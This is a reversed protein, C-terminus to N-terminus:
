RVNGSRCHRALCRTCQLTMGTMGLTGVPARSGSAGPIEKGADIQFQRITAGGLSCALKTGDPSFALAPRVLNGASDTSNAQELQANTSKGVPFTRTGSRLDWLEITHSKRCVALSRGNASLAIAMAADYRTPSDGEWKGGLRRLEKGTAVDSLVIGHGPYHDWALTKDDASFILSTAAVGNEVEIPRLEKGTALDRFHILVAGNDRDEITQFALYKLGPSVLAIQAARSAFASVSSSSAAPIGQGPRVCTGSAVDWVATAHGPALTLLLKADASFALQVLREQGTDLQHLQKGSASEWLRVIGSRSAAVVKGDASVAAQSSMALDDFIQRQYRALMAGETFGGGGDPQLEGWPFRRIEKSTGLDWLRIVHDKGATVLTKGDPMYDAFYIADGHRLQTPGMRALAGQPLREGTIEAPTLRNSPPAQATSHPPPSAAVAPKLLMTASTGLMASALLMVGVIKLKYVLMSRFAARALAVAQTSVVGTSSSQEGAFWLAARVTNILLPLPVAGQAASNALLTAIGTAPAAYGRRALSKRLRERAQALRAAMSGRPCGLLQAAEENTKGEFYCLVLPVRHRAPLRHLEEDLAVIVDSANAPMIEMQHRLHMARAQRQQRRIEVARARLALRYAVTYLWNGLSKTGNLTPAKRTLVLFTAQFVDDAAHLNRLVRRCVGLVLPGYRRVLAEVATEDHQALFQELLEGDTMAAAPVSGILHRVHDLFPNSCPEAM